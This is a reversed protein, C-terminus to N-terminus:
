PVRNKFIISAIVSVLIISTSVQSPDSIPLKIQLGLVSTRDM